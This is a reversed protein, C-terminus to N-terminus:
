DSESLYPLRSVKTEPKSAPEEQKKVESMVEQAKPKGLSALSAPPTNIKPIKEDTHLSPSDVTGPLHPLMDHGDTPPKEAKGDNNEWASKPSSAATAMTGAPGRSQLPTESGGDEQSDKGESKVTGKDKSDSNPEKALEKAPEKAPPKHIGDPLVIVKTAPPNIKRPMWHADM